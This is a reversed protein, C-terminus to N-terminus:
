PLTIGTTLSKVITCLYVETRKIDQLGDDSISGSTYQGHVEYFLKGLNTANTHSSLLKFSIEGTAANSMDIVGWGVATNMSFKAVQTKNAHYVIVILKTLLTANILAGTEDVLDTVVNLDAGQPLEIEKYCSM